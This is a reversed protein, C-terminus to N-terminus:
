NSTQLQSIDAVQLFLQRMNRLLALRNQRLDADDVMVMVKDFFLDVNERLNALAQLVRQYDRAQISPALEQQLSALQEALRQEADENLLKGNIDAPINEETKKLINSIRKNAAALSAAAPQQLFRMVANVRADFDLPETPRQSRVSEFVDVSIDQSTYYVKLRELMFDFCQVVAASAKISKDFQEATVTLLEYLDLNLKCEILIRVIGLAARRLAYPDKDGSPAQGIAFIGLLTDLRDALAVAQGFSSAPLQDGAFRPMYHEDIAAAVSGPEKDHQAYYRGMIGQLEPFEGVMETMLDCKCLQAARQTLKADAGLKDAIYQAIQSIRQTKDFLTGLKKQFVVSRLKDLRSSLPNHRDQQWFFEADAFRPRIVRENGKRVKDADRSDINSITIFYPLLKNNSDVIHFYKQNAAMTSILTEQPIDLFRKEFSGCVAVPWEVMATVEDLLDNDIVATGHVARAAEEAQQKIQDRRETFDAIVQGQEMLVKAYDRAHKLIIADPHHFRHGYTHRASTVSLIECDISQDGLMVVCWHVPRVFQADLDGWRMRKPIPLKNLAQQILEPLLASAAQGKELTKFMLWSGKDTELKQLQDVEVGCSRAFGQAAKSPKGDKDYAAQLAPGRREVEKDQQQTVLDFVNLALRRPTAYSQVSKYDLNLAALGATIEQQFSQALHKLAKPPLEETGIEILLDDMGTM